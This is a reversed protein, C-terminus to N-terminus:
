RDIKNEVNKERLFLIISINMILWNLGTTIKYVTLDVYTEGKIVPWSLGLPSYIYLGVINKSRLVLLTHSTLTVGRGCKVGSFSGTGM